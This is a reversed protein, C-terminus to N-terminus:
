CLCQQFSPSKGSLAPAWRSLTFTLERWLLWPFCQVVFHQFQEWPQILLPTLFLGLLARCCCTQPALEMHSIILIKLYNQIMLLFCITTPNKGKDDWVHNLEHTKQENETKQIMKQEEVLGWRWCLTQWHSNASIHFLLTNARGQTCQCHNRSKLM